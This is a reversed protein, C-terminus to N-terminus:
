RTVQDDLINKQARPAPKDESLNPNLKDSSLKDAEELLQDIDDM